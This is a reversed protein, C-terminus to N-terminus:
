LRGGDRRSRVQLGVKQLDAGQDPGLVAVLVDVLEPLSESEGAERLQAAVLQGACRGAAEKVGPLPDRAFRVIAEVSTSLMGVESLRGAPLVPLSPAAVDLGRGTEALGLYLWHASKDGFFCGPPLHCGALSVTRRVSSSFPPRVAVHVPLCVSLCVSRMPAHQCISALTLSQGLRQESAAAPPALPGSALLARLEEPSAHVV